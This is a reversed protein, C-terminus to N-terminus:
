ATSSAPRTPRRRCRECSTTATSRHRMAWGAIASGATSGPSRIGPRSTVAATDATPSTRTPACGWRGTTRGRPRRQDRSAPTRRHTRAPVDPSASARTSATRSARAACGPSRASSRYLPTPSNAPARASRTPGPPRTTATSDLARATASALRLRCASDLTRSTVPRTSCTSGRRPRSLTSTTTRSGGRVPADHRRTTAASAARCGRATAYTAQSGRRGLAPHPRKRRGHTRGRPAAPTRRTGWSGGRPTRLGAAGCSLRGM